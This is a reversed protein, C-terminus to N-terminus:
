GIVIREKGITMVEDKKPFQKMRFFFAVFDKWTPQCM